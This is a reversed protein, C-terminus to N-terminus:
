VWVGEDTSKSLCLVGFSQLSAYYKYVLMLEEVSVLNITVIVM